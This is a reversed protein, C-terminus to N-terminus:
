KCIEILKQTEMVDLNQFIGNKVSPHNEITRIDTAIVNNHGYKKRLAETLDTGIQGLAGTVLIKSGEYLKVCVGLHM